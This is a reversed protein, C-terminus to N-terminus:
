YVVTIEPSAFIYYDAPFKKPDGFHKLASIRIIYTGAKVTHNGGNNPNDSLQGTWTLTTDQYGGNSNNTETNRPMYSLSYPGDSYLYGLSKAQKVNSGKALLEVNVLAAPTSLPLIITLVQKPDTLNYTTPGTIYKGTSNLIGLTVGGRPDKINFIPMEKWSGKAGAYPVTLPTAAKDANQPTFVIYGSFLPLLEASSKPPATFTIDVTKQSKPGVTILDASFKATAFDAVYNPTELMMDNGAEFDIATLTPANSLKYTVSKAENNYITVRYSKQTNVTDNLSLASPSVWNNAKIADYVNVLGAGQLAVHAAYESQYNKVPKANNQFITKLRSGTQHGKAQIYLALAGAIYPCAMSTGSDIGYYHHNAPLTSYVYAGIASIDPKIYLEADLSASTFSSPTGGTSVSYTSAVNSFFFKQHPKAKVAAVIAGGDELTLGGCPIKEDGNIIVVGPGNNYVLCGIAGKTRALGCKDASGCATGLSFIIVKGKPNVNLKTCGDDAATPNNVVIEATINPFPRDFAIGYNYGYQNKAEDRIIYEIDLLNDISGVGFGDTTTAPSEGLFFGSGGINGMAVVVIHGQKTLRSALVADVEESWPLNEGLSMSIIDMKDAAARLMAQLIIDSSAGDPVCGFVRYAGITVEPAVGVFPVAPAPKTIHMANAGLIGATHTGHGTSCNDFPDPDPQPHPNANSYNDGVFDYGYAIRCGKTKYCAGFAPHKWYIGTDIQSFFIPNTLHLESFKRDPASKTELASVVGVKVGKGTFGLEKHVRDVGTLIHADYSISKNGGEPKYNKMPKPGPVRHVPWAAKVHPDNVYENIDADNQFEVSVGQFVNSTYEQHIRISHGKGGAKVQFYRAPGGALESMEVIYRNAIVDRGAARNFHIPAVAETNSVVLLYIAMPIITIKM